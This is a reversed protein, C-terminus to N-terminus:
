MNELEPSIMGKVMKVAVATSTEYEVIGVAEAKVVKGFAGQGLVVGSFSGFSL